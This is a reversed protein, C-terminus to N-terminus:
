RVVLVVHLHVAPCVVTLVGNGYSFEAAVGDPQFVVETPEEGLALTLTFGPAPPVAEIFASNQALSKGPSLNVLHVLLEGERRRLTIEVSPPAGTLLPPEPLAAELIDGLLARLGPYQTRHYAAFVEAAIYFAEGDGVRNRTVGPLELERQWQENGSLLRPLMTSAGSAVVACTPAAIRLPLGRHQFYAEGDQAGTWRVGLAAEIAFTPIDEVVRPSVRGSAILRGGHAVWEVLHDDLSHPFDIQEPLVIVRYRHLNALLDVENLVDHPHHLEQLLQHAGRVRDLSPGPDYLGNGARQHTAASHLVAVYAGSETGLCWPQRARAFEAAKAVTEHQSEPLSDDAHASVWVSWKGGNALIVAGEQCLHDLSKPYAPLAPSRSTAWPRPSCQNWTILDFPVRRSDLFRAELGAQKLSYAPSLDQCLRDSANSVRDPHHLAFAGNSAYAFDEIRDRLFRATREMYREFSGRHFELWEAWFSEDRGLPASREHLMQFETECASCYCPAVTWNEADLWLGDPAYRELIEDLQPLLLEDVYGANPCLARNPYAGYNSGIRRWEMRTAAANYDVLGSYGLILRIGMEHTIERVQLLFDPLSDGTASYLANGFRTPYTVYGQPGKVHYHVADPKVRELLRRFQEAEFGTGPSPEDSPSYPHDYHLLFFSESYWGPM